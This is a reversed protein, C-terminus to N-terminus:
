PSVGHDMPSSKRPRSSARAMQRLLAEQEALRQNISQWSRVPSSWVSARKSDSLLSGSLVASERIMDKTDITIMTEAALLSEDPEIPRPEDLRELTEVGSPTSCASWDTWTFDAFCDESDTVSWASTSTDFGSPALEIGSGKSSAMIASATYESLSPERLKTICLLCFKTKVLKFTKKSVSLATDRVVLCKRCIVEGCLRCHHRGRAPGFSKTCVVCSLRSANPVWKREALLGRRRIRRSDLSVALNQVTALLSKTYAAPVASPFDNEVMLFVDSSRPSDNSPRLIQVVQSSLRRVRMADMIDDVQPLQLPLTVRVAVERGRLDQTYTMYEVFLQDVKGSMLSSQTVAWKVGFYHHPSEDSATEFTQLVHADLTHHNLFQMWEYLGISSEAYMLGMLDRYHGVVDGMLRYQARTPVGYERRRLVTCDDQIGVIEWPWGYAAHGFSEARDSEKLAASILAQIQSELIKIKASGLRVSGFIGEPLPFRLPSVSSASRM